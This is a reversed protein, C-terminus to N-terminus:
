WCRLGKKGGSELPFHQDNDLSALLELFGIVDVKRGRDLSGLLLDNQGLLSATHQVEKVVRRDHWSVYMGNELAGIGSALHEIVGFIFEPVPLRIELRDM